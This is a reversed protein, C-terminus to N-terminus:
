VVAGVPAEAVPLINPILKAGEYRSKVSNKSM